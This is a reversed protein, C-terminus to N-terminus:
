AHSPLGAVASSREPSAVLRARAQYQLGFVAVMFLFWLVGSRAFFVSELASNMIGFLWIRLFLRTLATDNGSSFAAGIQTIPRLVLTFVVILLGPIGINIALDLYGNHASGATYAWTEITGGGYVVAYSSWYTHMGVGFMPAESAVRMAIRWIDIRNTFTPDIGLSELTEYVGTLFASGVTVINFVILGGVILPFRIWSYREILWALLVIAPLTLLSTKGGTCLLFFIAGSLAVLGLVRVGKAYSYLAVLVTVVMAASAANKHIYHGRWLGALMPESIDNTQHISLQPLFLVGFYSLALAVLAAAFTIRAFEGQLRPLLPLLAANILFLVQIVSSRLAAASDASALGSILLWALLVAIPTYNSWNIPSKIRFCQAIALGTLVLLTAQSLPSSTSDTSSLDMFPQTGIWFFTLIAFAIIGGSTLRSRGAVSSANPM